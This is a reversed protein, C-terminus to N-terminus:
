ETDYDFILKAQIPEAVELRIHDFNFDSEERAAEYLIPHLVVYGVEEVGISECLLELKQFRFPKVESFLLPQERYLFSQEHGLLSVHFWCNNVPLSDLNKMEFILHVSQMYQELKLLKIMFGKSIASSNAETQLEDHLTNSKTQANVPMSGSPSVLIFLGIFVGIALPRNINTHFTM